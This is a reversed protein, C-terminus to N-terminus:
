SSIFNFPIEKSVMRGGCFKFKITLIKFSTYKMLKNFIHRGYM